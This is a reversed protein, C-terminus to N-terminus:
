KTIYIYQLQFKYHLVGSFFVETVHTDQIVIFMIIIIIIIIRASQLGKEIAGCMHAVYMHEMDILVYIDNLTRYFSIATKLGLM